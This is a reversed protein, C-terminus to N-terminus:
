SWDITIDIVLGQPTVPRAKYTAKYGLGKLVECEDHILEQIIVAKVPDENAVSCAQVRQTCTVGLPGKEVADMIGMSLGAQLKVKSEARWDDQLRQVRAKVDAAPKYISSM